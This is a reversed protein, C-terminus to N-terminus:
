LGHVLGWDRCRCMWHALKCLFQLRGHAESNDGKNLIVRTEGAIFMEFEMNDFSCKHMYKRLVNVHLWQEQKKIDINTKVFKGLKLKTKEM